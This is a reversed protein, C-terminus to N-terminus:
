AERDVWRDWSTRTRRSTLKSKYKSADRRKGNLRRQDRKTERGNRHEKKSRESERGVEEREDTM